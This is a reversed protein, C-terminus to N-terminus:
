RMSKLLLKGQSVVVPSADKLILIAFKKFFGPFKDVIFIKKDM